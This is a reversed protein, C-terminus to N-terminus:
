PIAGSEAELAALLGRCSREVMHYVEEFGDEGGYYPDPVSAMPGGQPDFERLLHIKAEHENSRAKSMLYARNDMDMALILDFADFDQSSFQRARGGYHLGHRAAAQVMRPDPPEGVHWSGTGASAVEYRHAVGAQQVLYRFMNEALPSRVINGLCVFLIRKKTM